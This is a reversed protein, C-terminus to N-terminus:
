FEHGEQRCRRSIPIWTHALVELLRHNQLLFVVWGVEEVQGVDPCPTGSLLTEWGPSPLDQEPHELGSGLM